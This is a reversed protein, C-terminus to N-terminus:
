ITALGFVLSSLYAPHFLGYYVPEKDITVAFARDSSYSSIVPELDKSLKFTYSGRDYWRIDGDSVLPVDALVADTIYVTHPDTDRNLQLQFSRLEYIALESDVHDKACGTFLLIFFLCYRM